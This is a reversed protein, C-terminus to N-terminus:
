HRPTQTNKKVDIYYGTQGDETKFVYGRKAGTFTISKIFYPKPQEPQEPQKPQKPQKPQETQEPTYASDCAQMWVFLGVVICVVFVISHWKLHHSTCGQNKTCNSALNWMEQTQYFFNM